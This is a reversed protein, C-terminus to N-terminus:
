NAERELKQLRFGLQRRKNSQMTTLKPPEPLSFYSKLAELEGQVNGLAAYTEQLIEFAEISTNESLKCASQASFVAGDIDGMKLKASAEQQRANILWQLAPSAINNEGESNNERSKKLAFTSGLGLEIGIQYMEAAKGYNNQKLFDDAEAVCNFGELIAQQESTMEEEGFLLEVLKAENVRRYKKNGEL